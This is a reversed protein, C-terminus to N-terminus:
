GHERTFLGGTPQANRPRPPKDFLITVPRGYGESLARSLIELDPDGDRLVPEVEKGVYLTVCYDTARVAASDLAARFAAASSDETEDGVSQTM